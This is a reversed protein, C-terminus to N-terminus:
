IREYHKEFQDQEKIREKRFKKRLNTEEKLVKILSNEDMNSLNAHLNLVNRVFAEEREEAENIKLEIDLEKIESQIEMKLDYLDFM